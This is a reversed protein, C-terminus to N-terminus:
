KKGAGPTADQACSVACRCHGMDAPRRGAGALCDRAYAAVNAASISVIVGNRAFSSNVVIDDGKTTLRVRRQGV